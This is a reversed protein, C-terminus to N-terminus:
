LPSNLRQPRRAIDILLNRLLAQGINRVMTETSERPMPRSPRARPPTQM